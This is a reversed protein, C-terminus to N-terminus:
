TRKTQIVDCKDLGFKANSDEIFMCVIHKFIEMEEQNKAFNIQDDIHFLNRIILKHIIYKM